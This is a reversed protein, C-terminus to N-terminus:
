ITKEEIHGARVLFLKMMQEFERKYTLCASYSALENPGLPRKRGKAEKLLWASAEAPTLMRIWLARYVKGEWRSLEKQMEGDLWEKIKGADTFDGQMNAVEQAHHELAVHAQTFLQHQRKKSWALYLPCEACQKGSPTFGCADGGLNYSCHRGTNKDSNVCPKAFKRVKRRLNSLQNTAVRNVWHELKPAKDPHYLHWKLHIHTIIEQKIELWTMYSLFTWEERRTSVIRDIEDYCEEFTPRNEDTTTKITGM